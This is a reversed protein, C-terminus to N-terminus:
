PAKKYFAWLPINLIDAAEKATIKKDQWMQYYDIYNEPMIMPPRGFRM